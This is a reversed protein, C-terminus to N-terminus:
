LKVRILLMHRNKRLVLYEFLFFAFYFQVQTHIFSSTFKIIVCYILDFSIIEEQIIKRQFKM